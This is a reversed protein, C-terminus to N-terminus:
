QPQVNIAAPGKKGEGIEFEVTQEEALTKFGEMEISTHHVFLDEGGDDPTIFGYGKQDSFWKVKGTPMTSGGNRVNLIKKKTAAKVEM